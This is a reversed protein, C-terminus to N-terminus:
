VWVASTWIAEQEADVERRAALEVRLQGTAEDLHDALWVRSTPPGILLDYIRVAPRELRSIREEVRQFEAVLEGVVEVHFNENPSRGLVSKTASSVVAQPVAHEEVMEIHRLAALRM